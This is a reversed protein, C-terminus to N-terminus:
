KVRRISGSLVAIQLLPKKGKKAKRERIYINIKDRLIVLLEKM